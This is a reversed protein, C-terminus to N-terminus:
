SLMSSSHKSSGSRSSGIFNSLHCDSRVSKIQCLPFLDFVSFFRGAISDNKFLTHWFSILLFLLATHAVLAVDLLASCLYSFKHAAEETLLMMSGPPGLPTFYYGFLIATFDYFLWFLTHIWLLTYCWFKLNRKNRLNYFYDYGFFRSFVWLWIIAVIDIAFHMPFSYPNFHTM